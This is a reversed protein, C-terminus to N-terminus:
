WKTNFAILTEPLSNSIACSLELTKSDGATTELQESAPMNGHSLQGKAANEFMNSHRCIICMLHVSLLIASSCQMPRPITLCMLLLGPRFGPEQAARPVQFLVHMSQLSHHLCLLRVFMQARAFASNRRCAESTWLQEIWAAGVGGLRAAPTCM